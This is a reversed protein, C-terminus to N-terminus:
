AAELAPPAERHARRAVKFEPIGAIPDYARVTLRNASSRRGALPVPHLRHRAPHDRGRAGSTSIAAGARRRRVARRRAIRSRRRSRASPDRGQPTPYQDVLPGIRRTQNGSLFQSVVRGTTLIIPYEADVDEAPPRYTVAHFRARGDPHHFRGDEFLRPTGPHDESPVRGSSASSRTSRRGPSAPTTPSAARRSAGCSTSSRARALTFTSATELASGTPSTASSRGTASRRARRRWRRASASSAARPARSPARTRRTCRARCSSTPTAAGDGLPLLRDHRLLRPARAGRAHLAADPLSVSRTSASRSCAASRAARPDERRDRARDRGQAPIREEPVGWRPPSSRRPAGPERRRARRAAPQLAPRARARGSRQGPRHHDRLRLGPRGIKGTALVLNICALVNDVGKTHHEIGRAHLSCRARRRRGSRRRGRPHAAAPIGVAREVAEPAYDAVAALVDDFGNTHARSSRRPRRRRAPDGRPPHREAARRRPGPAGAPLPRRHARDAHAAPRRRDAARRPRPRALHLRDHDSQVRLRELRAGHHLDTAAIDAWPNAARDIGFAKLNGAGAAVMCLRGNYDINRTGVALRAFKGMLYAKENTLSAGPSCPSPTRATARRSARAHARRGPRAGRGLPIPAFGRGTRVMRDSCATLTTTRSIASSARRVSSAARQVPVGGVARRRRRARGEGAAPRRVAPRLLLLPDEGYSRARRARRVRGAAGLRPASRVADALTAPDAPLEAM